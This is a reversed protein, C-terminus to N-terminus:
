IKSLLFRFDSKNSKIVLIKGRESGTKGKCFCNEDKSRRHSIDLDDMGQLVENVNILTMHYPFKRVKNRWKSEKLMETMFGLIMKSEKLM